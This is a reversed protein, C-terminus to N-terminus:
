FWGRRLQTIIASLNFNFMFRIRKDYHPLSPEFGLTSQVPFYIEFIDPILQLGVGSDYIFHGKDNRNKYVGADAYLSFFKWVQLNTNLTTIWQNATDNISSKFAGEALVFQRPAYYNGTPRRIISHSFSYNSLTSIGFDFYSNRTENTLFYGGFLRVSLKKDQLYEWRYFAEASIKNFDQAHQLTIGMIKEHIAKRDSYVYGLNWLHYSDYDNLAKMTPSLDKNVHDFSLSLYRGIQSRPHKNFSLQSYLSIKRFALDKAYHFYSAKAGIRWSQFFADAPLFQYSAGALGTMQGTGTSYYPKVVFTFPRNLLNENTIGLGILVKDYYNYKFTPSLYLENYEPNPVDTFLKLKPKKMNSFFGRTYLYNDRDNSEPFLYDDNIIIKEAQHEPIIYTSEKKSSTDYWYQHEKGQSDITKLQFPIQAETNKKVKVAITGDEQRKFNKLKFNVRNKVQIFDELFVSSYQSKQALQNLFESLVIPQHSHATIWDKLFTNFKQVGMKEAIFNFLTGAEMQSIALQNFNSLEPYSTAMAQDLNQSMMYQYGLGYRDSLTLKSLHTWKLPSIKFLTLQEPLDGLLKKDNYFRKIYQMELYTKIGNEIWHNEIGDTNFLQTACAKSLTSFYDLDNKQADNFLQFRFKWFTIDDIGIFHQDSKFKKTILIKKPLTGLYEKIFNLQLPIYFNLYQQQNADVPYTFAVLTEQYTITFSPQQQSQVVFIPDTNLLGEFHHADTKTLNSSVSAPTKFDVTWYMYNSQREDVNYFSKPKDSPVLFFYKLLAEQRDVGYGTFKKAPLALTYDLQLQVAEGQQLTKKLPIAIVEQNLSKYVIGDIELQELKGQEEPKSFYLDTKRSELLRKSLTSGNPQYASIWNLLYLTDMPKAEPNHYIISQNVRWQSFDQGVGNVEMAIRNQQAFSWFLTLILGFSLSKTLPRM